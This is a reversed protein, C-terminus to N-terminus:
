IATLHCFCVSDSSVLTLSLGRCCVTGRSWAQVWIHEFGTVSGCAGVPVPVQTLWVSIGPSLLCFVACCTNQGKLNNAGCDEQGEGWRCLVM